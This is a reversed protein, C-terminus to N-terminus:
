CDLHVTVITRYWTQIIFHWRGKTLILTVCLYQWHNDLIRDANHFTVAGKDINFCGICQLDM